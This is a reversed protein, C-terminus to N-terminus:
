EPVQLHSNVEELTERLREQREDHIFSYNGNRDDLKYEGWHVSWAFFMHHGPGPVCPTRLRRGVGPIGDNKDRWKTGYLLLIHPQQGITWRRSVAKLLGSFGTATDGDEVQGEITVWGNVRISNAFDPHNRPRYIPKPGKPADVQCSSYHWFVRWERKANYIMDIGKTIRVLAPYPMKLGNLLLTLAMADAHRYRTRRLTLGNNYWVRRDDEAYVGSIYINRKCQSQMSIFFNIINVTGCGNHQIVKDEDYYAGGGIINTYNGAEDIKITIGDASTRLSYSWVFKLTCDADEWYGESLRSCAGSGHNYNKWGGDFVEGTAIEIVAKSSVTGTATPLGGIYADCAMSLGALPAVPLALLLHM